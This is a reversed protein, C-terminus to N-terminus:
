EARGTSPAKSPLVPHPKTCEPCSSKGDSLGDSHVEASQGATPTPELTPTIELTVTPETTVEVTPTIDETPVEKNCAYALSTSLLFLVLLATFIRM